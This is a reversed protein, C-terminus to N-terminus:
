ECPICLKVWYALIMVYFISLLNRWVRACIWWFVLRWVGSSMRIFLWKSSIHCSARVTYDSTSNWWQFPPPSPLPLHSFGLIDRPVGPRPCSKFGPGVSCLAFSTGVQCGNDTIKLISSNSKNQNLNSEIRTVNHVILDPLVARHLVSWKKWPVRIERSGSYFGKHRWHFKVRRV